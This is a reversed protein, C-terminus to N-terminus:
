NKRNQSWGHSFLVAAVGLLDANCACCCDSVLNSDLRKSHSTVQVPAWATLESIREKIATMVCEKEWVRSADVALGLDVPGEDARMSRRTSVLYINLFTNNWRANPSERQSSCAGAALRSRRTSAAALDSAAPQRKTVQKLVVDEAAGLWAFAAAATM